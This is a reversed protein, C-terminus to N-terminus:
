NRWSIMPREGRYISRTFEVVRGSALYAVREIVLAPPAPAFRCFPPM